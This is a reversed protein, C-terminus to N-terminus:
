PESGSPLAAEAVVDPARARTWRKRVDGYVVRVVHVVIEHYHHGGRTERIWYTVALYLALCNGGDLWVFLALGFEGATLVLAVWCLAIDYKCTVSSM